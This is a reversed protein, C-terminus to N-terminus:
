ADSAQLTKLTQNRWVSLSGDKFWSNLKEVAAAVRTAEAAGLPQGTRRAQELLAEVVRQISPALISPRRTEGASAVLQELLDLTTAHTKTNTAEELVSDPATLGHETTTRRGSDSRESAGVPDEEATMVELVDTGIRLLDGVNLPRAAEVREGNVWTGNASELDAITLKGADLKLACHQRSALPNSLVISCYPSRGLLTEGRRIPFRTGRYKLWYTSM